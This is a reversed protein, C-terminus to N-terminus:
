VALFRPPSHKPALTLVGIPLSADGAPRPTPVIDQALRAAHGTGADLAGLTFFFNGLECSVHSLVARGQEDSLADQRPDASPLGPTGTRVIEEFRLHRPCYWHPSTLLHLFSFCPLAALWLSLAVRFAAWTNRNAPLTVTM